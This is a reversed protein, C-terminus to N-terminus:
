VKLNIILLNIEYIDHKQIQELHSPDDRRFLIGGHIKPNLTKVRGDLIEPFNTQDSVEKVPISNEKLYERLTTKVQNFDLNSFNSLPM